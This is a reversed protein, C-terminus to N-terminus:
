PLSAGHLGLPPRPAIMAPGRRPGAEGIDRVAEGADRALARSGPPGVVRRVTHSDAVGVLAAAEFRKGDRRRPGVHPDAGIGVAVDLGRRAIRAPALLVAVVRGIAGRAVLRLEAVHQLEALDQRAQALAHLAVQAGLVERAALDEGRHDAEEVAREDADAVVLVRALIQRRSFREKPRVV